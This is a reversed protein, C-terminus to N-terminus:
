AGAEDVVADAAEGSEDVEGGRPKRRRIPLIKVRTIRRGMTEMVTLEGSGNVSISDGPM